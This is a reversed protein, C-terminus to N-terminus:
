DLRKRIRMAAAGMILTGFVALAILENQISGLGVGKIMLVRIISLFFRMPIM